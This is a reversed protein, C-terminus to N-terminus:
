KTKSPQEEVQDITVHTHGDQAIPRGGQGIVLASSLSNGSTITTNVGEDSSAALLPKVDAPQQQQQQQPTAEFSQNNIEEIAQRLEKLSVVGVLRGIRTVYAHNVGMMSFVSHVRLLSTREVLQFPSPDICCAAAKFDIPKALQDLEWQKKGEPSMDVVRDGCLHVRKSPSTTTQMDENSGSELDLQDASKRYGSRLQWEGSNVSNLSDNSQDKLSLSSKKLISKHQELAERRESPLMEESAIHRLSLAQEAPIVEFRSPRRVAAQEKLEEERWREATQMRKERGIQQEILKALEMRQVSGLLILNEPSEVLPLSRLKKNKRLVEKLKQYSIGQWIYKVDRVMFDEVCKKYLNSNTYLLDPLYPLKKIQIVSEYMSPQLLSAVANAVLVAVLVPVVFAIQGSIEFVVVAVSISHTVSGSFAAAGVLAYAAPMIPSMCDGYRVGLPFLWAVFEGMLRGFGSGIKLAPIFMGHPVAMTSGIISFFFHFLTYCILNGFVSTYKTTWHSVIESQETNLDTSTWTFNSFLHTLQKETELDGGLFQGTGLPFTLTSILLTIIAPYLLRNKQLFKNLAKSSRIFLVYHRHIWVFSAGLLGCLAGTLAFFVLERSDFPFETAINTPYVAHVTDAGQFWVSLLRVASAGIVCGFFGRWYNRVAFYTTTVEISFLVAGIPAAFCTGLGLACAAALMENSRSENQYISRFPTAMKSLLNAVISAIHVYPGEKGLPMGSGLVVTLGLVKAVLTKFSLYNKLTVGRLITKMEPIGSGAAQPSILHVFFATFVMMVVPVLVWGFYQGFPDATIGKYFWFRLEILLRIGEDMLYAILAMIIGCITLFIWDKSMRDAIKQWLWAYYGQMRTPENNELELLQSRLKDEQKRLKALKRLRRAEDGAFQQLDRSYRGYMLTYTYGLDDQDEGAIERKEQEQRMTSGNSYNDASQISPAAQRSTSVIPESDEANSHRKM